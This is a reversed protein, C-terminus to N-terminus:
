ANGCGMEKALNDIDETELLFGGTEELECGKGKLKEAIEKIAEAKVKELFSKPLFLGERPRPTALWDITKQQSKILAAADRKLQSVCCPKGKYSCEKCNSITLSSCCELAKVIGSETM